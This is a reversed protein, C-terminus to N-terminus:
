VVVDVGIAVSGVVSGNDNVTVVSTVVGGCGSGDM